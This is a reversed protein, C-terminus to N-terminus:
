DKYVRKDKLYEYMMNYVMNTLEESSLDKFDDYEIVDIIELHINHRKFLLNDNVINTNTFATVVIPKRAKQALVFTGEKFPLLVEHTFNRTGEPAIGISCEDNRLMKIGRAIAYADKTSGDRELFIFGTRKIMTGFFPIKSLSKKAMFIMPYKRFYVNIIIPDLNSLHNHAVVFTTNTPIKEKGNVELKIGFLSLLMTTYIIYMKHFKKNYHKVEIDKKVFLQVWFLPIFFIIILGLLYVIFFLIFYIVYIYEHSVNFQFTTLVSLGVSILFALWKIM